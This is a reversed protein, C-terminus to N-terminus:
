FYFLCYGGFFHIFFLKSFLKKNTAQYDVFWRLVILDDTSLGLKIAEIQNFGEITFKLKKRRKKQKEIIDIM